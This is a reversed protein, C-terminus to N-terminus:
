RTKNKEQVSNILNNMMILEENFLDENTYKLPSIAEKYLDLANSNFLYYVNDNAKYFGGAEAIRSSYPSAEENIDLYLYPIEMVSFITEVLKKLGIKTYGKNVYISNESGYFLNCYQIEACTYKDFGQSRRHFDLTYSVVPVNDVTLLYIMENGFPLKQDENNLQQVCKLEIM